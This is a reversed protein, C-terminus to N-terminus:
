EINDKLYKKFTTSLKWNDLEKKFADENFEEKDSSSINITPQNTITINSDDDSFLDKLISLIEIESENKDFEKNSSQSKLYNHLTNQEFKINKIDYFLYINKLYFKETM